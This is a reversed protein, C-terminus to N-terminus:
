GAEHGILEGGLRRVAAVRGAAPWSAAVKTLADARWAERASVTWAGTAVPDGMTSVIHAPYGADPAVRTVSTAVACDRLRGAMRYGGEEDRLALPLAVAGFVRLDGGANVWGAGAGTGVLVRVARDVAFGKAIGDLTVHVPRRLRVSGDRLLAIDGAEGHELAAEGDHVPLAGLRELAGGVTCDFRGASAHMFARALRLAVSSIRHVRVPRGGARNLRSLDSDADQFSLLRHVEAIAGFAADIAADASRGADVGVEVFTGLWPQM